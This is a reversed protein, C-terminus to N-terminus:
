SDSDTPWIGMFKEVQFAMGNLQGAKLLLNASIVWDTGSPVPRLRVALGIHGTSDITAALKLERELSSWEKVGEWGRSKNAMDRFFATLQSAPEYAYVVCDGHFNPGSLIMRYHWRTRDTFELTTGHHASKIVASHEM